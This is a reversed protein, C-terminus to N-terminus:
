KLCGSPESLRRTSPSNASAGWAGNDVAFATVMAQSGPGNFAKGSVQTGTMGTAGGMILGSTGNLMGM